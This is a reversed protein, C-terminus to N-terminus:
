DAPRIRLTHPKMVRSPALGAPPPCPDDIVVPPPDPASCGASQLLGVIVAFFGIVVCLLWVAVASADFSPRSAVGGDTSTVPNM